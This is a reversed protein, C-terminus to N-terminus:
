DAAESEKEDEDDTSPIQAEKLYRQIVATVEEKPTEAEFIKVIKGKSDYVVYCPVFADIQKITDADANPIQDAAM